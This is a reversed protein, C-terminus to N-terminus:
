PAGPKHSLSWVYAAALRARTEGILPKHAPMQGNRGQEIGALLVAHTKGYLWVDDTLDPAGLVPNGKGQPGHCAVCIGNFLKQGRELVDAAPKETGSLSLVYAIVDDKATAGGMATLTPGWAPMAAQRGNLVTQLVTDPDGGWQWSADALNPYGVAGQANSGHCVACTNAFVGHGLAVAKPDAALEPLAKGDYPALAAALKADGAAKDAAYERKSTWGSTGAFNGLGPYWVLYGITFLITLYFLNIWWKPLPKNYETLDGDWVHGTQEAEQEGARRRSTRWLLVVCSVLQLVVLAIVYNSWGGNM